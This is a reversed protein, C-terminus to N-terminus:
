LFEVGSFIYGGLIYGVGQVLDSVLRGQGGVAIGEGYGIGGVVGLNSVVM